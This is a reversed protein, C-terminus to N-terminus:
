PLCNGVLSSITLAFRPISHPSPHGSVRPVELEDGKVAWEPNKRKECRWGCCFNHPTQVFRPSSSLLWWYKPDAKIPVVSNLTEKIEAQSQVWLSEKSLAEHQSQSLTQITRSSSTDTLRYHTPESGNLFVFWLIEWGENSVSLGSYLVISLSIDSHDKRFLM